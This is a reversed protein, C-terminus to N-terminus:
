QEPKPEKKEQEDGKEEKEVKKGFAERFVEAFKAGKEGGFTRAMDEALKEFGEAMNGIRAFPLNIVVNDRKKAGAEERGTIGAQAELYAILQSNALMVATIKQKDTAGEHLEVALTAPYPEDVLRTITDLLGKFNKLVMDGVGDALEMQMMKDLEKSLARAPPILRILARLNEGSTEAM